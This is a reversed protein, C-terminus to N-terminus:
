LSESGPTRDTISAISLRRKTKLVSLSAIFIGVCALDVSLFSNRSTLVPVIPNFFLCVAFFVAAWVHKHAQTAQVLVVVAGAWVVFAAVFTRNDASSRWLIALLVLLAAISSLKMIKPLM